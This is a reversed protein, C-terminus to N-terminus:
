RTREWRIGAFLSRGIAPYGAVEEYKAGFLNDGRFVAAVGSIGTPIVASLDVRTFAPLTVPATPFARFDRDGREGVRTLVARISGGDGFGLSAFAGLTHKPRRILEEGKVYSAGASNDFGTETVETSLWSYNGGLSLREAVRWRSEIEVGNATAGAVNYYNSGGAPPTGTYQVINKFTQAYGVVSVTLDGGALFADFGLEGSQSQEPKLEPNGVTFGTAFNEFFSPAKFATGAAARFRLSPGALFAIGARGTTFGGFASNEDQRAGVVYSWRDSVDGIAQAYFGTNHRAAEFADDFSGFSSASQSTSRERDRSVDAGVTMTSRSGVRLNARLDAARRTRVSRSYYSDDAADDAADNTRPLFENSTLTARLELHDSLRRGADFSTTLRHDSQEANHDVVAGSFDTPYHYTAASWRAALRVDTRSDPALSLGASLARNLFSNNFALTGSTAEHTGEISYRAKASGGSAGLEAREAGHEGGGVLARLSAPGRGDRTFLQIVGTVAESGYLVSAPGRVIEIREINGTTFNALDISGGADNVPVGDVIVRVYNSNGGRLFLSTQSGVPGSGLVTAGPVLRLADAVRTIGQARLEDGRLVTTTTTPAVTVVAVRTATIVAAQLGQLTDRAPSGQAALAAPLLTATALVVPRFFM